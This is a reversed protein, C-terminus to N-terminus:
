NTTDNITRVAAATGQRARVDQAQARDRAQQWDTTGVAAGLGGSVAGVAKTIFESTAVDVPNWLSPTGPTVMGHTLTSSLGSGAGSNVEVLRDRRGLEGEGIKGTQQQYLANSAVTGAVNSWSADAWLSSDRLYGELGEFATGIVGLEPREAGARLALGVATSPMNGFDWPIFSAFGKVVCGTLPDLAPNCSFVRYAPVFGRRDGAEGQLGLLWRGEMTYSASGNASWTTADGGGAVSRGPTLSPYYVFATSGGLSRMVLGTSALFATFNIGRFYEDGGANFQEFPNVGGFYVLRKGVGGTAFSAGQSPRYPSIQVQTSGNPLRVARTLLIHGVAQGPNYRAWVLPTRGALQVFAEATRGAAYNITLSGDDNRAGSADGKLWFPADASLAPVSLALAFACAVTKWLLM